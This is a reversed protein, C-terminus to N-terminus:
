PLLILPAVTFVYWCHLTTSSDHAGHISYSHEDTHSTKRPTHIHFTLQDICDGLSFSLHCFSVYCWCIQLSLQTPTHMYYVSNSMYRLDTVRVMGDQCQVPHGRHESLRGVNTVFHVTSIHFSQAEMKNPSVHRNLTTAVETVASLRDRSANTILRHM